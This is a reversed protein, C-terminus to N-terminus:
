FFSETLGIIIVFALFFTTNKISTKGSRFSEGLQYSSSMLCHWTIHYTFSDQKIHKIEEYANGRNYQSGGMRNKKNMSHVPDCVLVSNNSPRCHVFDDIIRLDNWYNVIWAILVLCFTDKKVRRHCKEFKRYLLFQRQCINRFIMYAPM